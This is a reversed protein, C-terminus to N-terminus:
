NSSCITSLIYKSIMYIILFHKNFIIKTEKNPQNVIKLGFILVDKEIDKMKTKVDDLTDEPLIVFAETALVEGADIEEIVKHCMAGTIYHM